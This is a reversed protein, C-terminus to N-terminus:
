PVNKCRVAEPRRDPWPEPRGGLLEYCRFEGGQSGLLPVQRTVPGRGRTAICAIAHRAFIAIICVLDVFALPVFDFFDFATYKKKKSDGTVEAYRGHALSDDSAQM